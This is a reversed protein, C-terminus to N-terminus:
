FIYENELDIKKKKFVFFAVTSYYGNEDALQNVVNQLLNGGSLEIEDDRMRAPQMWGCYHEM